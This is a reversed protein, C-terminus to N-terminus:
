DQSGCILHRRGVRAVEREAEMEKHMWDIVDESCEAFEEIYVGKQRDSFWCPMEQPEDAFAHDKAIQRAEEDGQEMEAEADAAGREWGWRQAQTDAFHKPVPLPYGAELCAEYAADRAIKFLDSVHTLYLDVARHAAPPFEPHRDAPQVEAAQNAIITM